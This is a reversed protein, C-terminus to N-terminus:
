EPLLLLNIQDIRLTPPQGHVSPCAKVNLVWYPLHAFLLKTLDLLPKQSIHHSIHPQCNYTASLDYNQTYVSFIWPHKFLSCCSADREVLSYSTIMPEMRRKIEPVLSGGRSSITYLEFIKSMM